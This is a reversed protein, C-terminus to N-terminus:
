SGSSHMKVQVCFPRMCFLDVLEKRPLSAVRGRNHILLLVVVLYQLIYMGRRLWFQFSTLRVTASFESQFTADRSCYPLPSVSRHTNMGRKITDICKKWWVARRKM